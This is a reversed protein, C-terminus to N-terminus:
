LVFSDSKTHLYLLSDLPVGGRRTEPEQVVYGSNTRRFARLSPGRSSDRLPRIRGSHIPPWLNPLWRIPFWRGLFRLVRSGSSGPLRPLLFRPGGLFWPVPSGALGFPLPSGPFGLFWPVPFVSSGPFGLIRPGPSPHHSSGPLGLPVPSGPLGLFWPLLCGPLWPVQSVPLRLFWPVPFGLTPFGSSGVLWPVM